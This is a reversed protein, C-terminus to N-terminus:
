LNTTFIQSLFDCFKVSVSNERDSVYEAVVDGGMVRFLEPPVDLRKVYLAMEKGEVEVRALRRASEVLPSLNAIETEIAVEATSNNERPDGANM